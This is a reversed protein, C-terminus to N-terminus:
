ALQTLLVQGDERLQQEFSVTQNRMGPVLLVVGVAKGEQKRSAAQGQGQGQGLGQGRVRSQVRLRM